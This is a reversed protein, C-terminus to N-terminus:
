TFGIVLRKVAVALRLSVYELLALKGKWLPTEQQEAYIAIFQYEAVNM